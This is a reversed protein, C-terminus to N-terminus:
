GAFPHAKADPPKRPGLKAVPGAAEEKMPTSSMKPNSCKLAGSVKRHTVLVRAANSILQNVPNNPTM